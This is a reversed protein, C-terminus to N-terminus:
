PSSLFIPLLVLAEYFLIFAIFGIFIKIWKKRQDTNQATHWAFIPLAFFTFFGLINFFLFGFMFTAIALASIASHFAVLSRAIRDAELSKKKKNTQHIIYASIWGTLFAVLILAGLFYVLGDFDEKGSFNGYSHHMAALFVGAGIASSIAWGIFWL